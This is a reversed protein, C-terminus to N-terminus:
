VKEDTIKRFGLDIMVNKFEKEDMTGDKNLDYNKFAKIFATLEPATLHKKQEFTFELTKESEM